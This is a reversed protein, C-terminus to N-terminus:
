RDCFVLLNFLAQGRSDRQAWKVDAGIWVSSDRTLDNSIGPLGAPIRVSHDVVVFHEPRFGLSPFPELLGEILHQRALVPLVPDREILIAPLGRLFDHRRGDRSVGNDGREIEMQLFQGLFREFRFCLPSRDDDDIGVVAVDEGHGGPGGIIRVSNVGFMEASFNLANCSSGSM